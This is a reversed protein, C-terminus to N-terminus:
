LQNTIHSKTKHHIYRYSSLTAFYHTYIYTCIVAPAPIAISIISLTKSSLFSRRDGLLLDDCKFPDLLGVLPARLFTKGYSPSWPCEHHIYIYIYIYLSWIYPTDRIDPSTQWLCFSWHVFFWKSFWAPDEDNAFDRSKNTFSDM